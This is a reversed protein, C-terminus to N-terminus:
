RKCISRNHKQERKKPKRQEHIKKQKKPQKANLLAKADEMSLEPGSIQFPQDGQMVIVLSAHRNTFFQDLFYPDVVQRQPTNYIQDVTSREEQQLLYERQQTDIARRYSRPSLPRLLPIGHINTSFVRSSQIIVSALEHNRRELGAKYEQFEKEEQDDESAMVRREREKRASKPKGSFSFLYSHTM